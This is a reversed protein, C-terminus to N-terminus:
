EGAEAVASGGVCGAAVPTPARPVRYAPGVCGTSLATALVRPAIRQTLTPAPM